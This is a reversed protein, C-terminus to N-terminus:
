GWGAVQPLRYHRPRLQCLVRRTADARQTGPRAFNALERYTDGTRFLAQPKNLFGRHNGIFDLVVLREKGPHQRLGRGLQQLFLVKSDTPRLMMVTDIAPLDVGENFLDVSFIIDIEGSTLSELAEGRTLRSGNYVAAAHVNARGFQEAMFDAHRRSVCFALTKTQGKARWERM